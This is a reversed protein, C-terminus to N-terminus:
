RTASLFVIACNPERAPFRPINGPSRSHGLCYWFKKTQIVAQFEENGVTEGTPRTDTSIGTPQRQCVSANFTDKTKIGQLVNRLYIEGEFLHIPHKGGIPKQDELGGPVRRAVHSLQDM